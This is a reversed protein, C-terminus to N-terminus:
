NGTFPAFGHFDGRLILVPVKEGAAAAPARIPRVILGDARALTALM